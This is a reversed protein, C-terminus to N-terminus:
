RGNGRGRSIGLEADNALQLCKECVQVVYPSLSPDDGILEVDHSRKRDHCNMVCADIIEAAEATEFNERM